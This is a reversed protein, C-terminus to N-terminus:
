PRELRQNSRMTTILYCLISPGALFPLYFAWMQRVAPLIVDPRHAVVNASSFLVAAVMCIFASLAAGTGFLKAFIFALAVVIPLMVLVGSLFSFIRPYYQWMWSPIHSWNM